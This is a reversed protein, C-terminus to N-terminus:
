CKLSWKLKKKLAKEHYNNIQQNTLNVINSTDNYFTNYWAATFKLTESFDLTPKWKIVKNAKECNLKLLKAETSGSTNEVVWKFGNWYKKLEIVLQEVTYDNEIPPGFNFPSGNTVKGEFLNQALTLYGSLPELVHQWPRTSKPNRLLAPSCRSWSRACDPIIRDDAWDGGGIVNGARGIGVRINSKEKLFTRVFSSIALEASAKSSSYPDKGGLTDSEKYGWLSEVNEYCKDSTIFVAACFKDQNITANLLNITGIVNTKWTDIPNKLSELVISQAALHFIFDPNVKAVIENVQDENAINCRYDNVLRDLGTAEFMSPSTPVKDSIGSVNAGLQLLWHCLWSGKFGTHGTILIEKNHFVGSFM